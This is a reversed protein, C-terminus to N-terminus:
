EIAYLLVAKVAEMADRRSGDGGLMSPYRAGYGVIGEGVRGECSPTVVSLGVLRSGGGWVCM